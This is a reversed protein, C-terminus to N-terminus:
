YTLGLRKDAMQSIERYAAADNQLAAERAPFMEQLKSSWAQSRYQEPFCRELLDLMISVTVSAGPSAGLLAAITGDKAAVLETGFQLIGGKKPDKKIIQVRQGAIELRWDEAKAEPYFGRLTALRDEMSQMVEKILYRTLDMNDRAVAMMPGINSPRISLPLDMFSGRKLFKTTFGAYPGFLLSKKGDVVRTDLHPVSMPPAGVAALSYVKAQHQKVIEQNDCRLWQGSVPFGGFGKGEEIGSMQLLPLAAGGAGLFVFGAQVQRSGGTRTNKIDVKWGSATRDLGTVKQNYSVKVGGSRALYGLLQSTVAGFNVDTGNMARTAAIPESPDRGPMMLPMWEALTARDESYEMDAFAHHTKLADFRRKLYDINKSGRVFSLHPVPNIFDRPSGFGERDALYAWFQKSVEFQTNILVAKKIDITGDKSDPTYNLECLGAHGTGANNWPNSSEIAGSEQLEVIELKINPDLEKLLVALTASMIGAGVLVMDVAESDHQTMLANELIM